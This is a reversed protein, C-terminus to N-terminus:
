FRHSRHAHADIAEEDGLVLVGFAYV